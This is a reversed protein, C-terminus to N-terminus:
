GVILSLGTQKPGGEHDSSTSSCMVGLESDLRWAAFQIFIGIEGDFNQQDPSLYPNPLPVPRRIKAGFELNVMSGTSVGTFSWCGKGELDKLAKILRERNQSASDM